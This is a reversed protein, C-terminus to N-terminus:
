TELLLRCVLNCPSQLESTHEESRSASVVLATIPPAAASCWASSRARAARASRFLTTYPFLTSRPPRRIMLFVFEMGFGKLLVEPDGDPVDAGKRDPYFLLYPVHLVYVGGHGLCMGTCLNLGTKNNLCFVAYSIVLHSSNLRTSKRDAPHSTPNCSSTCCVNPNTRFWTGSGRIPLADHLSLTYIETTAPEKLFFRLVCRRSGQGDRGRAERM